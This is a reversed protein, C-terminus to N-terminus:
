ESNRVIMQEFNQIMRFCIKPIKRFGIVRAQHQLKPSHLMFFLALHPTRKRFHSVFHSDHTDKNLISSNPQVSQFCHSLSSKVNQLIFYAHSIKMPTKTKRLKCPLQELFPWFKILPYGPLRPHGMHCVGPPQTDSCESSSITSQTQFIFSEIVLPLQILSTHIHPYPARALTFLDLTQGSAVCAHQLCTKDVQIAWILFIGVKRFM